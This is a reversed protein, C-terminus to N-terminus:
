IIFPFSTVIPLIEDNEKTIFAPNTVTRLGSTHKHTIIKKGQLKLPASGICADNYLCVDQVLRGDQQQFPTWATGDKADGSLIDAMRAINGLIAINADRHAYDKHTFIDEYAARLDEMAELKETWIFFHSNTREAPGYIAHERIHQIAKDSIFFKKYLLGPNQMLNFRTWTPTLVKNIVKSM